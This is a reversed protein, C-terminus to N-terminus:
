QLAGFLNLVNQQWNPDDPDISSAQDLAKALNSRLENLETQVAERADERKSLESELIALNARDWRDLTDIRGLEELAKDPDNDRWGM